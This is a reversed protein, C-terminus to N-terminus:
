YAFMGVDVYFAFTPSTGGSLSFFYTVPEVIPNLVDRVMDDSTVTLVLLGKYLSEDPRYIRRFVQVTGGGTVNYVRVNAVLIGGHPFYIKPTEYSAALGTQQDLKKYVIPASPFM